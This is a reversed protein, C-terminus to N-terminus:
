ESRLVQAPQLSAARQAPLWAALLAAIGLLGTALLWAVLDTSTTEFLFADLARQAIISLVVGATIGVLALVLAGRLTMLVLDQGTAGLALRVGFESRRLQVIYSMVGYVGALALLLAIASFTGLLVTRFRPLSITDAVMNELTQFRLAVDTRDAAVLRRVPEALSAPDTATRMVVQLEDAYRPHQQYPMYLEATATVAPSTSRVDAVVGIITMWKPSDLGCQLQKGIPDEGPFSQKALSDSIIAVFPADLSDRDTFDRGKRFPIGLVQFYNPGALRFRASPLDSLRGSNWDQKGQVICYGNSNYAGAPVGMAASSAVIGPIQRLKEPLRTFWLSAAQLSADDGRSPVSAYAVLVGDSRFGLDVENLKLFSHFILGATVALMFALAIEVVVLAQRTRVSRGSANGREGAQKLTDQVDTRLAQLAPLLAFFLSTLLALLATFLVVRMDIASEALRPINQPAVAVLVRLGALALAIGFAAGTLSLVAAEWFMMSLVTRASAGLAVRIAFERSRAAGRALLLNAVNACAILLLVSVAALLALLTQRSGSTLVDRLETAGFTKREHTKPFQTALRQALGTLQAKASEVTQGPALRAVTRYNHATRNLSPPTEPLRVWVGARPPYSQQSAVVGIIRYAVDYVIVTQDLAAESSGFRRM